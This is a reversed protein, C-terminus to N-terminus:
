QTMFKLLEMVAVMHALWYGTFPDTMCFKYCRRHSNASCLILQMGQIAPFQNRLIAQAANIEIDTLMNQNLISEFVSLSVTISNKPSYSHIHDINKIDSQNQLLM